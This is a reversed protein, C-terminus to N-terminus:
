TKKDTRSYCIGFLCIAERDSRCDTICDLWYRIPGSQTSQLAGMLDHLLYGGLVIKLLEPREFLSGLPPYGAAALEDQPGGVIDDDRRLEQVLREYAPTLFHTVENTRLVISFPHATMGVRASSLSMDPAAFEAVSTEVDDVLLSDIIIQVMGARSLLAASM